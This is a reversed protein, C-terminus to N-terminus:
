KGIGALSADAPIPTQVWRPEFRGDGPVLRITSEGGAPPSWADYGESRIRGARSSPQQVMRVASVSGANSASRQDTCIGREPSPCTTRRDCAASAACSKMGRGPNDEREISRSKRRSRMAIWFSALSIAGTVMRGHDGGSRWGMKGTHASPRSGSSSRTTAAGVVGAIKMGALTM